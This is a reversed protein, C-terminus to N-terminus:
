AFLNKRFGARDSLRIKFPATELFPNNSLAQWSLDALYPLSQCQRDNNVPVVIFTLKLAKHASGQVKSLQLSCM